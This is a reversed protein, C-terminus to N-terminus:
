RRLFSPREYMEPLCIHAGQQMPHLIFPFLALPDSSIALNTFWSNTPYPKKIVGWYSLTLSVFAYINMRALIPDTGTTLKFSTRSKRRCLLFSVKWHELAASQRLHSCFASRSIFPHIKWRNNVLILLQCKVAGRLPLFSLAGILATFLLLLLFGRM